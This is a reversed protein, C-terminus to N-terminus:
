KLGRLQTGYELYACPIEQGALLAKKLAEKNVEHVTRTEIFEPPVEVGERYVVRPQGNRVAKLARGFSDFFEISPNEEVVKKTTEYIRTKLTELRRLHAVVDDRYKKVMDIEAEIKLYLAKRRDVAAVVDALHEQFMEVLIADLGEADAEAIAQQAVYLDLAARQLSVVPAAPTLDTM